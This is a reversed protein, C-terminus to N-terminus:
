ALAGGFRVSRGMDGRIQQRVVSMGRVVDEQSAVSGITNNINIVVTGGQGGGQTLDNIQEKPHIMALYGGKGDLGGSRPGNGTHGGGEFSLLGGLFGGISSGLGGLGGGIGGGAGGMISKLIPEVIQLRLFENIMQDVLQKVADGNGRLAQTISNSMSEFERQAKQTQEQVNLADQIQKLYKAYEDSSESIRLSELARVANAKARESSNMGIMSAELQLSQIYAEASASAKADIAAKTKQWAEIAAREDEYPKAYAAVAEAQAKQAAVMAPQQNILQSQLRNFETISLKGRDLADNLLDFSKYFGSDFGSSKANLSDILRALEEAQKEATNDPKTTKTSGPKDPIVLSKVPLEGGVGASRGGGATSSLIQSLRQQLEVRKQLLAQRRTESLNGSELAGNVLDIEKRLSEYSQIVFDKGSFIRFLEVQKLLTTFFGDGERAGEKFQKSVANLGEVLPGVLNRSADLANKQLEFLQKNFKEAELAAATTVTGNLQTKESLDKLFPAVERVSKGFLEQIARAKDSDDAFSSLAVATQRLAEAPDLRKLQEVSLGLQEFVKAAPSDARAGSLIDNFKIVAKGVTEFSTGTRFAIDELASANEISSGTADSFDNLADIGNNVAKAYALFAAGGTLAVASTLAAFRERAAETAEEIRRMSVLAQRQADSLGSTFEASDLSLLVALRGLASM